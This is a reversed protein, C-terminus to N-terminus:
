AGIQHYRSHRRCRFSPERLATHPAADYSPPRNGAKKNGSVFTAIIRIALRTQFAPYKEHHNQISYWIFIAM